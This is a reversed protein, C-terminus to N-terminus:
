TTVAEIAQFLEMPDIPKVVYGDFGHALLSERSERGQASVAIVPTSGALDPLARLATLAAMGNLGPMELDMLVLDFDNKGLADLADMGDAAFTVRHGFEGLIANAVIRNVPNDEAVLVNLARRAHGAASPAPVDEVAPEVPLALRFTAGRGLTSEVSVAGGAREAAAKVLALGLGTGGAREGGALQAYPEFLRPMDDAAIGPGSDVVDIHLVHDKGLRALIRIGGHRTHKVANDVLNEVARRILMPYGSVRPPLRDAEVAVVLGRGEARPRALGAINDILTAPDFAERQGLGLDAELRGLDLIDNSIAITQAIAEKLLLVYDRSPGMGLESAALIDVIASAGSLPTRIEHAATRLRQRLAAVEAAVSATDAAHREDPEQDGGKVLIAAQAPM